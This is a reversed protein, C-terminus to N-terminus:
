RRSPARRGAAAGGPGRDHGAPDPAADCRGTAFEVLEVLVGLAPRPRGAAAAPRGRRPDLVFRNFRSVPDPGDFAARAADLDGALAAQHGRLSAPWHEPLRGALLGARVPETEEGPPLLLFGFPLPFAGLPLPRTPLLM